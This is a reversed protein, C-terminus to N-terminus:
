VAGVVHLSAGLRHMQGAWVGRIQGNVELIKENIDIVLFDRPDKSLTPM